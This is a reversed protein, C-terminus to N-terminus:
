TGSVTITVTTGDSLTATGGVVAGEETTLAIATVYAGTDGKEGQTNYHAAICELQAAISNGKPSGASTCKERLANLAKSIRSM